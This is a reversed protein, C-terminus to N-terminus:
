LRLLRRLNRTAREGIEEPKMDRLRAVHEAVKLVDRPQASDTETLLLELPIHRIVESPLEGRSLPRLGISLYIGLDGCREVYEIGKSFGHIVAGTEVNGEEEILELVEFGPTRDHVIVPLEFERALRLQARFTERQIEKDIIREEYVWDKTMRGVYDLGIESVAVVKGEEILERFSREIEADYEDAYWPHVGICARVAGFREAIEVASNSSGLDIGATLILSVDAKLAEEVAGEVDESLHCHCDSFM